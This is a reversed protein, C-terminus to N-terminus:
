RRCRPIGQLQEGTIPGSSADSAGGARDPDQADPGGADLAALCTGNSALGFMTLGAVFASAFSSRPPVPVVQSSQTARIRHFTQTGAM